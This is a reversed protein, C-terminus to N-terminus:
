QPNVHLARSLEVVVNYAPQSRSKWKAMAVGQNKEKKLFTKNTTHKAENDQKM